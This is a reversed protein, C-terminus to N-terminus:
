SGRRVLLGVGLLALGVVAIGAVGALVGKTVKSAGGGLTAFQVDATYLDQGQTVVTFNRTDDWGVITLKNTSAIGPPVAVDYNNAWIGIRRDDVRDTIRMNKSWTAGSDSSTTYYVDHSRIGPDNRADFWVVDVRGNPSVSLNPSQQAFLANPGDDNLAQAKSWTKGGDTSRQYFADTESAVEPHRSGEYVVHLTGQSGGGPSWRIRQTGFTSLGYTYPTIANATFTKGHDTSKSLWIAPPPTPSINASYTVWAVYLNGKTDLTLSPNSGGFNAAQDPTAAKSGPVATTTTAGAVTTTSHILNQRNTADNYATGAIDIPGGFTKGGDTSVAVEAQRPTVNPATTTRYDSRWAVYVIDQSGSHADVALDSVPRSTETDAGTKGRANRVITTQWSDGLNDSRALVVSLDGTNQGGDGDDYGSMAMYLEHHRGFAVPVMDVSGSIVFCFPYSPPDPSADLKTWTQGADMSRMLGCRRSRAEVYGMVVINSNEPDVAISPSTYTRSPDTDQRTAFVPATVRPSSAASASPGAGVVAMAM